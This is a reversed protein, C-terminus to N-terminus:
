KDETKITIDKIGGGLHNIVARMARAQAFYMENLLSTPESCKAQFGKEELADEQQTLWVILKEKDVYTMIIGDKLPDGM